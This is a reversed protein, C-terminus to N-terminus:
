RWEEFGLEWRTQVHNRREFARWREFKGYLVRLWLGASPTPDDVVLLPKTEGHDLALMELQDTEAKSLDGFTWAASRKRVGDVTAFGGSSLATASGTDIPRRGSGWEKGLAPSFAKGIILRGITLPDGAPQLVRIALHQVTAPEGHWLACSLAPQHGPVDPVRLPGWNKLVSSPGGSLAGDIFWQAAPVPPRVAGLFVTDITRPLGLDVSIAVHNAPDNIDAWVERPDNTLLNEAGSGRDAYIGAVPLPPVILLASM